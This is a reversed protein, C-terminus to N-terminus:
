EVKGLEARAQEWYQKVAPNTDWGPVDMADDYSILANRLHENFEGNLESTPLCRQMADLKARAGIVLAAYKGKEIKGGSSVTSDIQKLARVAPGTCGSDGGCSWVFLLLGVVVFQKLM